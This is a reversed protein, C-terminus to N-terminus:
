GPLYVDEGGMELENKKVRDQTGKYTSLPYFIPPLLQDIWLSSPLVL